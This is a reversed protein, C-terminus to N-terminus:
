HELALVLLCKFLTEERKKKEEVLKDRKKICTKVLRSHIQVELKAKSAMSYADVNVRYVEKQAM